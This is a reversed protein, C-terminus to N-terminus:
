EYVEGVLDAYIVYRESKLGLTYTPYCTYLILREQNRDVELAAENSQHIIKTSKIKYTFTGYNTKIKIDDNIKLKPLYMFHQRSNHGAIVITGGEGPYYSGLYRGVGYKLIDLSDGNYINLERNISTLYLTGWVQGYAPYSILRKQERDIKVNNNENTIEKINIKNVLAIVLDLDSKFFLSISFVFMASFFLSIALQKVFREVILRAVKLM